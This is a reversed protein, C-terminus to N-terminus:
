QNFQQMGFIRRKEPETGEALLLLDSNGFHFLTLVEQWELGYFAAYLMKGFDGHTVLLLNNEKYGERLIELLQGARELLEPFTEAGDPSLFYTITDTKLIDPACLNEIEKAPMGSMVGFDREILLDLKVPPDLELATTLITATQHARQLPSCYVRDFRIGAERIKHALQTAQDVGIATLPMDRRGNLIGSANDIDQGHRALYLTPLSM